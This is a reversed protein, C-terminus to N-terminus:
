QYCGGVCLVTVAGSEGVSPTSHTVAGPAKSTEWPMPAAIAQSGVATFAAAAVFLPVLARKCLHM